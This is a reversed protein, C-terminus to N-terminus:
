PTGPAPMALSPKTRDGARYQPQQHDAPGAALFFHVHVMCHLPNQSDSELKALHVDYLVVRPTVKPSNSSKRSDGNGKRCVPSFVIM